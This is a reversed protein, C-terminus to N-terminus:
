SSVAQVKRTALDLLHDEHVWTPFRPDQAVCIVVTLLKIHPWAYAYGPPVILLIGPIFLVEHRDDSNGSSAM